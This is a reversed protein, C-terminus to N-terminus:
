HTYFWETVFEDIVNPITVSSVSPFGLVSSTFPPSISFLSLCVCGGLALTHTYRILVRGPLRSYDPATACSQSQLRAPLASEKLGEGRDGPVDPFM